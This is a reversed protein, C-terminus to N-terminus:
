SAILKGQKVHFMAGPVGPDLPASRLHTAIVQDAHRLCENVMRECLDSAVEASPDDLLVLARVGTKEQMVRQAALQLGIGVAKSEGRSGVWPHGDQEFLSSARASSLYTFGRAVDDRLGDRLRGVLESAELLPGRWRLGIEGLGAVRDSFERLLPDIREALAARQRWLAALHEAYPEDWVAKGRAGARLWANRQALTRKLTSFLHAAGPEVHFMTWDLFRRRLAPDGDVLAYTGSGLFRVFGTHRPTHQQQPWSVRLTRDALKVRGLVDTRAAGRSLLPGARRGRFSRQRDLLYVAELLTTKGAGNGGSLWVLGAPLETEVERCCRLHRVRLYELVAM